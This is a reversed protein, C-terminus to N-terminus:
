IVIHFGKWQIRRKVNMYLEVKTLSPKCFSFASELGSLPQKGSIIFLLSEWHAIGVVVPDVNRLGLFGHVLELHLSGLFDADVQGVAVVAM